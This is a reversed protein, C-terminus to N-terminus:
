QLDGMRFNSKLLTAYYFIRSLDANQSIDILKSSILILNMVM